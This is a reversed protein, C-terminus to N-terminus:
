TNCGPWGARPPFGDSALASPSPHLLLLLCHPRGPLLGAGRIRIRFRLVDDYRCFDAEDKSLWQEAGWWWFLFLQRGSGPWLWGALPSAAILHYKRFLFGAIPTNPRTGTYVCMAQLCVPCTVLIGTGRDAAAVAKMIPLCTWAETPDLSGSGVPRHPEFGRCAAAPGLQSSQAPLLMTLTCLRALQRSVSTCCMADVIGLLQRLMRQGSYCSIPLKFLWLRNRARSQKARTLDGAPHIVYGAGLAAM